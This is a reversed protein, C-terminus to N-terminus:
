RRRRKRQGSKPVTTDIVVPGSEDRAASRLTGGDCLPICFNNNCGCFIAGQRNGPICVAGASCETSSSCPNCSAPEFAAEYDVCVTQPTADATSACVCGQESNNECVFFDPGQCFNNAVCGGGQCTGEQYDCIDDASGDCCEDHCSVDEEGPCLCAGDVCIQSGPCDSDGCCDEFQVCTDGPCAIPQDAPCACESGDCVKDGPCCCQDDAICEGQCDQFGSACQCEGSVCSQNDGCDAATCCESESICSAGCPKTGSQCADKKKKSKKKKRKKHKRKAAADDGDLALSGTALLSGLLAGLTARRSLGLAFSRLLDDFRTSDM